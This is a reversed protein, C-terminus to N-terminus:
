DACSYICGEAEARCSEECAPEDVMGACSGFCTEQEAYCAAQCSSQEDDQAQIAWALLVLPLVLLLATVIRNM